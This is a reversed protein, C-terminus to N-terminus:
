PLHHGLADAIGQRLEQALVPKSLIASVGIHESVSLPLNDSDGTLIIIPINRLAEVKNLRVRNCFQLGDMGAMHLDCIMFDPRAEPGLTEIMKLAAKGDGAEIVSSIGFQKLLRQVIRRMILQDDIILAKLGAGQVPEELCKRALSM